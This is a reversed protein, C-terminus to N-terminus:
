LSSNNSIKIIIYPIVQESAFTGVAVNRAFFTNILTEDLMCNKFM